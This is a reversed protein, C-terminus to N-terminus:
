RPILTSQSAVCMWAGKHDIWTDVFRDRLLYPKGNKIGQERYIGVVIVSGAFSRVQMAESVIHQLHPEPARVSALYHAKDMITGDDDIYILEKDLLPEVAKADKQVIAQNWARELSLIRNQQAEGLTGTQAHGALIGLLLFGYLAFKM